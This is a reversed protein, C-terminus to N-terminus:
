GLFHQEIEELSLGRTEPLFRWVVWAYLATFSALVFFMGGYGLHAVAAMFIAALGASLLSNCFLTVSMGKARIKLPLTESIALWAVIGPGMAFFAMFLLLGALTVYGQLASPVSFCHVAGILVFSAASGLTGTLLLPRRGFKDILPLMLATMLFNILGVCTSGVIAATTNSFGSQHLIVSSFQLVSNVGTLQNLMGISLAIAFAKWYKKLRFLKWSGADGSHSASTELEQLISGAEEPGHMEMLLKRAESDRGRFYLWRPSQPLTFAGLVFVAAPVLATAFMARWDGSTSFAYDVVYGLLIGFTLCLQFLTIGRGRLDRHIVEILYLPVVVTILGVGIGQVLRGVMAVEFSTASILILVGLMFLIGAAKIIGKRGFLDAAPGGILTALSGGGLVAAVILSMQAGNLGLEPRMFLLAGSIAGIDYGYLVGGLGSFALVMATTRDFTTRGPQPSIRESAPHPTPM